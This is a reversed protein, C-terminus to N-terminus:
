SVANQIAGFVVLALIALWLLLWGLQRWPLHVVATPLHTPLFDYIRRIYGFVHTKPPLPPTQGTMSITLIKGVILLIWRRGHGGKRVDGV